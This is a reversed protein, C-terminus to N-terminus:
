EGVARAEESGRCSGFNCPASRNSSTNLYDFKSLFPIKIIVSSNESLDLISSYAKGIRTL